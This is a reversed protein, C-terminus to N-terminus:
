YSNVCSKNRDCKNGTAMPVSLGTNSHYFPQLEESCLRTCHKWQAHALDKHYTSGQLFGKTQQLGFNTTTCKLIKSHRDNRVM